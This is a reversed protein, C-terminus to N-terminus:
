TYGASVSIAFLNRIRPTYLGDVKESAAPLVPPSPAYFMDGFDDSREPVVFHIQLAYLPMASCSGFKLHAHLM